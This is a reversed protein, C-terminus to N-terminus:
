LGPILYFIDRKEATSFVTSPMDFQGLLLNSINDLQSPGGTVTGIREGEGRYTKNFNSYRYVEGDYIFYMDNFDNGWKRIHEQTKEFNKIETQKNETFSNIDYKLLGENNTKYTIADRKKKSNFYNNQTKYNNLESTKWWNDGGWYDWFKQEDKNFLNLDIESIEDFLINYEAETIKGNILDEELKQSPVLVKLNKRKQLEQMTEYVEPNEDYINAVNIVDGYNDGHGSVYSTKNFLENANQYLNYDTNQVDVPVESTNVVEDTNNITYKNSLNDKRYDNM